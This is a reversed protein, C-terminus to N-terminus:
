TRNGANWSNASYLGGGGSHDGYHATTVGKLCVVEEGVAPEQGVEKEERCKRGQKQTGGV